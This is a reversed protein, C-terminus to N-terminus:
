YTKSIIRDSGIEIDDDVDQENSIQKQVFKRTKYTLHYLKEKPEMDNFYGAVVNRNVIVPEDSNRNPLYFTNHLNYIHTFLSPHIRVSKGQKKVYYSVYANHVEKIFEYSQRYFAYFASKYMPFKETFADVRNSAFLSLYHYHLNPNNGRVDRLRAYASNMISARAGSESDHLMIGLMHTEASSVIDDFSLGSIDVVKPTYIPVNSPLTSAIENASYSKVTNGDVRYGAILFVRPCMVNIVIHNLPHQLVFSYIYNKDLEKVVTSDNLQTDNNEGLAEMFMQRFTYQLGYGDIDAYQTRFFWYRGGVAGKTSIEWSNVRQDYFLNIMTGEITENATVNDGGMNEFYELSTSKPPSFSLIQSNEPAVVVSRYAGIVNHDDDSVVSTDYNLIRYANGGSSYEKDHIQSSAYHKDFLTYTPM